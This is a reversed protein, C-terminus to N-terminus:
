YEQGNEGLEEDRRTWVAETRGFKGGYMSGVNEQRVAATRKDVFNLLHVEFAPSLNVGARAATCVEGRTVM